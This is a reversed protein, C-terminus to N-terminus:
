RLNNNDGTSEKSPVCRDKGESKIKGPGKAKTLGKNFLTYVSKQETEAWPDRKLLLTIGEFNRYWM